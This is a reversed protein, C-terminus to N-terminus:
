LIQQILDISFWDFWVPTRYHIYRVQIVSESLGAVAGDEAGTYYGQRQRVRNISGAESICERLALSVNDSFM